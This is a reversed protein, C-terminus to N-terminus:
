AAKATEVKAKVPPNKQVQDTIYIRFYHHRNKQAEDSGKIFTGLAHRVRHAEYEDSAPVTEYGKYDKSIKDWDALTMSIYDGPYNCIPALKTAKAVKQAVEETPPEYGTISEVPVSKKGYYTAVTVTINRGDRRNVKLIISRKDGLLITGGPKLDLDVAVMGGQQGLLEREYILRGQIHDIWRQQREKAREANEVVSQAVEAITRPAYNEKRDSLFVDYFTIWYTRAHEPDGEKFPIYVHQNWSHFMSQEIKELTLDPQSWFVFRNNADDFDRQHSRQEAELTKIRRVRVGPQSKYDAHALVAKARSEWRGALESMKVSKDMANHMKAQDRRAKRESHHGVLIPQGFEFRKAIESSRQYAASSDKARSEGYAEFREARQEAREALSTTEEEIEDCFQLLLDERQPSWAPAVLCGQKPASIFGADKFLKYDEADLRTTTYLRLKNDEPSYTAYMM